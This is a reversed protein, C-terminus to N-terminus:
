PTWTRPRLLGGGSLRCFGIRQWPAPSRSDNRWGDTCPGPVPSGIPKHSDPSGGEGCDHRYSSAWAVVPWTYIIHSCHGLMPGTLPASNNHPTHTSPCPPPPPLKKTPHFAFSAIIEFFQMEGWILQSTWFNRVSPLRQLPAPPSSSCSCFCSCSFSSPPLLFYHLLLFNGGM